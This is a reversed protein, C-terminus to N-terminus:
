VGSQSVHQHQLFVGHMMWESRPQQVNTRSEGRERQCKSPPLSPTGASRAGGDMGAEMWSIHPKKKRRKNKAPLLSDGANGIVLMNDYKLRVGLLATRYVNRGPWNLCSAMDSLFGWKGGVFM